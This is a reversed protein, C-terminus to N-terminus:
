VELKKQCIFLLSHYTLPYRDDVKLEDFKQKFIELKSKTWISKNPLNNVGTEKLHQMLDNLSAFLLQEQFEQCAIVQYGSKSLMELWSSKAFYVLSNNTVQKLEKFNELSFTSFAFIGQSNLQNIIQQLLEFPNEIWQIMANSIILDFKQREQDSWTFVDQQESELTKVQSFRFIKEKVEPLINVLDVLTINLNHETSNLYDILLNANSGTGLDCIRLQKKRGDYHKLLSVLYKSMLSQVKAQQSYTYKSKDFNLAINNISTM